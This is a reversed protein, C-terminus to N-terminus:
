KAADGAAVGRVCVGVSGDVDARPRQHCLARYHRRFHKGNNALWLGRVAGASACLRILGPTPYHVSVVPEGQGHPVPEAYVNVCRQAGAILSRAQYAGGTLAIRTVM